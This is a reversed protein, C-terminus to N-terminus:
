LLDDRQHMRLWTVVDRVRQSDDRRTILIADPTDVIIVDELGITVVLRDGQSVVMTRQSEISLADGLLVNGDADADHTEMVSAWTGIDSWGIEVPIVAVQKAREMVGYDITEKELTPWVEALRSKFDVTGWVRDLDRLVADLSPMWTAIEELIRDARWIFMGSNWAYNGSALFERAREADPKETFAEARYVPLASDADLRSGMRIYGYGTAAFAPTIGLTVLYGDEAVRRAAELGQDFV